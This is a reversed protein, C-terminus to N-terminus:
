PYLLESPVEIKEPTVFKPVPFAAKLIAHQVEPNGPLAVWVKWAAGRAYERYGNYNSFYPQWHNDDGGIRVYLQGNKGEAMAAYIDKTQANAQVHLLSGANVGAVKRANILAKLKNRLNDGWDFYHKWFVCPIGPHTLIYAYAQEAEWNNAFSDFQHNEQPTGDEETRFGTDHNEIFTVARNKWPIGHTTDGVLGIGNGYGYWAKYKGKNNKLTFFTTFDFVHSSTRLDNPTTATHWVWGRQVDHQDWAYEGVSFTPLTASNYLAIWKAHYGHVMDYRWGRYGMSKLLLLYKIIDHRVQKNTHDIDRFSEYAYTTVGNPAYEASSEEGAGRKEDPTGFVESNEDNFAEDNQTIAWTGWVPNKFDAWGASGNRHNIVIDAIPEIGNQLLEELMARHQKHSGYSNNLNFYEKPDYGASYQGAFSPPPLWILDFYGERIQEAKDTVITYWKANGFDPFKEQHGHRYSEWYFGQLMVRDDAFGGQAHVPAASFLIVVAFLLFISHLVSKKVPMYKM